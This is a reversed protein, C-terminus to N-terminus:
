DDTDTDVVVPPDTLVRGGHLETIFAVEFPTLTARISHGAELRPSGKLVPMQSVTREAEDIAARADDALVTAELPVDVLTTLFTVTYVRM